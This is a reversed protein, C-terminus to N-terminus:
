VMCIALMRKKKKQSLFYVQKEKLKSPRDSSYRSGKYIPKIYAAGLFKPIDLGEDSM